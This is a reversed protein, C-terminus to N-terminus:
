VAYKTAILPHMGIIAGYVTGTPPQKIIMALDGMALQIGIGNKQKPEGPVTKHYVM